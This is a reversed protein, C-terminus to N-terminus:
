GSYKAKLDEYSKRLSDYRRAHHMALSLHQTLMKLFECDSGSFGGATRRACMLVGAVKGEIILPALVLSRLEVRALREHLQSASTALDPEYVIEGDLCRELGGHSFAIRTQEALALQTALPQSRAGVRAVTMFHDVAEHECIVALDVSFEDEISRLAVQYIGNLDASEGIARTTRQLLEMREVHARQLGDARKRETIDMAMGFVAYAKGATDRLASKVSLYTHSGDALPVSEEETIAAEAAMARQDLSRLTAAAEPSFLTEDTRGFIEGRKLGFMKDFLRSTFLYRGDPDKVFIIAAASDAIAELLQRSSRMMEEAQQRQRAEILLEKNAAELQATRDAVRAELQENARRVEHEAQERVEIERRLHAPSPLQLADPILRVLLFATPVSALATIAKVMGSLWYVPTWVTIIEMVHTAGCAIIFVAFCVFMWNFQLDRRRRVFYLLTFPITAYAMAIFSDSVVHLALIGPQWLYCMGHPMFSATAHHLADDM